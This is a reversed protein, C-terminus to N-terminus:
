KKKPEEPKKFPFGLHELFALTEIKNGSTTVFTISLGFIDKIDEDSTEPFITHEKIGITCNGMEDVSTRKLGRFDRTRPLAVHILKDLFTDMRKGRLTVQYGVIDGERLKFAAISKKAPRASPKQGSIKTLRDEILEIKKKDKTSGIGVSILVKEIKPSQMANVYGFDGKLADLAKNQKEKLLAM